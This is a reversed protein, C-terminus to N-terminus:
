LLDPRGPPSRPGPGLRAAGDPARDVPRVGPPLARGEALLARRAGSARLLGAAQAASATPAVVVDARLTWPALALAARADVAVLARLGPADLRAVGPALPRVVAGHLRAPAEGDLWRLRRAGALRDLLPELREPRAPRPGVGVAGDPGALVVAGGRVVARLDGAPVQPALCGPGRAPRPLVLAALLVLALCLLRRPARRRREARALALAVLGLGLAAAAGSPPVVRADPLRAGAEVLAFLLTTPVDALAVLAAGGVPWLAGLLVGALALALGASFLAICPPNLVLSAPALQGLTLALLPASAAFAAISAPVLRVARDVLGAARREPRLRGLGDDRALARRVTPELLLLGAVTGFSLLTGAERVALPEMVLAALLGVALRNWADGRGALAVGVVGAAAARVTPVAGGAVVVYLLVCAGAAAGQEPRRLDLGRAALLVLAALFTVHLGSISLLHATGTRRFAQAAAPDLGGREGLLVARLFAAHRPRAGQDIVERAQRAGRRRVGGARGRAARRARPPGRGRRAARRRRPPAPGGGSRVGRPRPGRAPTFRGLARLRAGPLPDGEVARRPAEVVVEAGGTALSLRVRGPGAHVPRARLVGEVVVPAGPLPPTEPSLRARGAAARSAWAGALGGAGLLLLGVAVPPALRGARRLTVLLAAPGALALAWPVFTPLLPGAAAGALVALALPVAPRRPPM